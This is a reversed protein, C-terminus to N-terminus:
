AGSCQLRLPLAGGSSGNASKDDGVFYLGLGIAAALLLVAVLAGCAKGIASRNWCSTSKASYLPQGLSSGSLQSAYPEM